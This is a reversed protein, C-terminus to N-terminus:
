HQRRTEKNWEKIRGEPVVTRSPPPVVAPDHDRTAITAAAAPGTGRTPSPARGHVTAAVAGLAPRAGLVAGVTAAVAGRVVAPGADEEVSIDTAIGPMIDVIEASTVGIMQTSPDEAPDPLPAGTAGVERRVTPCRLAPEVAM